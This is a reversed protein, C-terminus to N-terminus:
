RQFSVPQVSVRYRTRRSAGSADITEITTEDIGAFAGSAQYSVRFMPLLKSQCFRRPNFMSYDPHALVQDVIIRGGRPAEVVNIRTRLVECAPSFSGTVFLRVRSGPAVVSQAQASFAAMLFFLLFLFLSRM